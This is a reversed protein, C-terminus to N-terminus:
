AGIEAPTRPSPAVKPWGVAREYALAVDFLAADRHHPALVQMGIPLGAGPGQDLSGCPISVAPNGYINSIITLGGMTVLDPVREVVAEILTNSLRPAVGGAMRVTGMLGRFVTRAASSSKARDIFTETPSSTTADAAFAPGPNTTSIIFDVQEFASAMAENAELRQAEAVAALHLNYLSQALVVGLAIEDTLEDACGPWRPGLEALLTSLNGMAWQAALNPLTISLDVEVMGTATILERAAGRIHEEVGPELTVGGLAPVVAVRKGALDTSGLGAEWNGPNPLSSPDRPDLGACVDYHRAADRVSRALCGLVVTGPRFFAHPGRSLRGYTGKMGLLGCYGAPIRISGGGDGGSAISVLGGAVASASGGSSGGATRGHRWPNHTIGNLKTISVNLGGFESATTLGVPVAGGDDIFRRVTEGTVTAVRDKFVLSAGTDPWGAVEDLEKIGVPVGGFPKSVDAQAAAALAAEPDLYSFCNLDSAEIADLTAQLEETPSREGARFADVLSCADDLWPTDAMPLDQGVQPDAAV